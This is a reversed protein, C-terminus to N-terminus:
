KWDKTCGLSDKQPKLGLSRLYKWYESLEAPQLKNAYEQSWTDPFKSKGVGAIEQLLENYYRVLNNISQKGKFSFSESEFYHKLLDEKVVISKIMGGDRRSANYKIGKYKEYMLCFLAIKKNAPVEIIEEITLGLQTFVGIDNDYPIHKILAVFQADKLPEKVAVEFLNLYGNFYTVQLYGNIRSSTLKYTQKM